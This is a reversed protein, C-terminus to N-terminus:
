ILLNYDCSISCSRSISTGPQCCWIGRIVESLTIIKINFATFQLSTFDCDSGEPQGTVLAHM